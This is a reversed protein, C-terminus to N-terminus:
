QISQEAAQHFSGTVDDPNEKRKERDPNLTEEGDLSKQDM